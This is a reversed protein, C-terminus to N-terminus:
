NRKRIESSSVPSPPLVQEGFITSRELLKPHIGHTGQQATSEGNIIRHFVAFSIELEDFLDLVSELHGQDRYYRLEGIRKLTDWGIVFNSHPFIKAKEEFTAARTIHLSGFAPNQGLQGFINQQREHVAHYNIPPKDVNAISLELDIQRGTIEHMREVIRIHQAHLPNFAGCFIDTRYTDPPTPLKSHLSLRNKEGVLLAALDHTGQWHIENSARTKDFPLDLLGCAEALINLIQNAVYEEEEERTAEPNTVDFEYTTTHALTQVAIYAHHQRGQRENDKVLSCSAGLGIVSAVGAEGKLKLARQFSAMALDRAAGASCFKDPKGGVFDIFSRENYPIIAELLTKSGNGHRLLESVAETGGGTVAMVALHDTEHIRRVLEALDLQM